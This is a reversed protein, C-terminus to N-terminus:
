AHLSQYMLTRSMMLTYYFLLTIISDTKVLACCESEKGSCISVPTGLWREERGRGETSVAMRLRFHATKWQGREDRPAVLMRPTGLSSGDCEYENFM